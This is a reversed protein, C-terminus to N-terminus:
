EKRYLQYTVTEKQGKPNNEQVSQIMTNGSRDFKIQCSRNFAAAGETKLSELMFGRAEEKKIDLSDKLRELAAKPFNSTDIEFSLMEATQGDYRITLSDGQLEWRGKLRFTMPISAFVDTQEVTLAMRLSVQVQLIAEITSDARFDYTQLFENVTQEWTGVILDATPAQAVDENLRIYEEIDQDTINMLLKNERNLTELQRVAGVCAKRRAFYRRIYLRATGKEFIKKILWRKADLTPNGEDDMDGPGLSQMFEEFEESRLPRRFALTTEMSKLLSRRVYYCSQVNDYFKNNGLNKRAEMGSNFANEKTDITWEKVVAPNDYFYLFTMDLTDESVSDILEQHTSVFMAVKFLSDELQIEEKLRQGIENIDCVAMIATERQARQQKRNDVARNVTFTLGLGIATGLISILLQKSWPSLIDKKMKKMTEIGCIYPFEEM